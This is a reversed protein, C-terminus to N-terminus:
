SQSAHNPMDALLGVVSAATAFVWWATMINEIDHMASGGAAITEFVNWIMFLLWAGQVLLSSVWILVRFGAPPTSVSRVIYGLTVLYGPGFVIVALPSVNARFFLWPSLLLGWYCGGLALLIALLRALWSSQRREHTNETATSM